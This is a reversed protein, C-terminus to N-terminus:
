TLLVPARTTGKPEAPPRHEEGRVCNNSDGGIASNACPAAASCTSLAAASATASAEADISLALATSAAASPCAGSAGGAAPAELPPGPALFPASALSMNGSSRASRSASSVWTPSTYITCHSERTSLTSSDAGGVASSLSRARRSSTNSAATHPSGGPAPAPAGGASPGASPAADTHGAM